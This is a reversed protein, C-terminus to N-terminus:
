LRPQCRFAITEQIRQAKEDTPWCDIKLKVPKKEGEVSMDMYCAGRLTYEAGKKMVWTGVVSAALFIIFGLPNEMILSGPGSMGQWLVVLSGLGFFVGLLAVSIAAYVERIDLKPRSLTNVAARNYYDSGDNDSLVFYSGIEFIAKCEGLKEALRDPYYILRPQSEDAM